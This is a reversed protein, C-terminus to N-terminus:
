NRSDYKRASDIHDQFVQSDRFKQSEDVPSLVSKMIKLETGVDLSSANDDFCYPVNHCADAIDYIAKLTDEAKKPDNKASQAMSRITLLGRQLWYLAEKEVENLNKPSTQVNSDVM